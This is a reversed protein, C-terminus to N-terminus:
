GAVAGCFFLKNKQALSRVPNMHGYKVVGSARRDFSLPEAEKMKRYETNLM